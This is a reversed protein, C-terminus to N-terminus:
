EAAATDHTADDLENDIQLADNFRNFFGCLTIRLTLEVIQAETFHKRLREFMEDRIQQANRTVAITYEVVLRDVEDLEPSNTEPLRDIAARSLGEVELPHTHHAVCYHCENLKSTVVIALEVYRWNINQSAKLEMLLGMIHTVAQPVHAFAAVQNRFPGYGSAYDEYIKAVAPSLASSPVPTVRAM